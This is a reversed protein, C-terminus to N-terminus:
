YDNWADEFGSAKPKTEPLALGSSRVGAADDLGDDSGGNTAEEQSKKFASLMKVVARKNGHECTAQHDPNAELWASFEPSEILDTYDPHQDAIYEFHENTDRVSSAEKLADIADMVESSKSAVADGGAKAAVAQILQVFESGFDESLRAIAEEFSGSQQVIETAQEAAAETAEQADGPQGGAVGSAEREALAAERAALEQERKKLRGQWSKFAQVDEPPVDGGDDPVEAPVEAPVEDAGPVAEGEIAAASEPAAEEGMAAAVDAEDAAAEQSGDTVAVATGADPTEGAPVEEAQLGFAEDESTEPAKAQDEDFAAAFAAEDQKRQEESLM